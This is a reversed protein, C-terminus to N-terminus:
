RACWARWMARYAKEVAPVPNCIASHKLTERLSGRLEALQPTRAFAKVTDIFIEDTGCIAMRQGLTYLISAAVRGHVTTGTKTIVPVGMWLAELTSVGGNQPLSDLALDVAGFAALHAQHKSGGEIEVRDSSLGHTELRQWIRERTAAEDYARDKLYLRAGPVAAVARAWLSLTAEDAKKPRGLFGFTVFGNRDRPLQDEDSCAPPGAYAMACPLDWIREAYLSRDREPIVIQDSFLYDIEPIGTGSLNGWATVQVPAPKMSFAQLCNGKTHGSLDVLIDIQDNRVQSTLMQPTPSFQGKPGNWTVLRPWARGVDPEQSSTDYCYIDFADSHGLVVSGFAMSASHHRFDGSVYGIRLPREPDCDNAWETHASLGYTEWWRRRENQAAQVTTAPDRDLAFLAGSAAQGPQM